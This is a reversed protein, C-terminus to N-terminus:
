PTVPLPANQVANFSHHLGHQLTCFLLHLCLYRYHPHSVRVGSSWPKRILTLRILTLRPRLLLRIAYEISLMNINMYRSLQSPTTSYHFIRSSVSYNTSPHLYIQPLCIRWPHRVQYYWLDESSHITIRFRSVLFVELSYTTAARVPFRCLHDLLTDL